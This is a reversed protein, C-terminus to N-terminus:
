NVLPKLTYGKLRLLALVGKEGGLHAAGVAFLTTHKKAIGDFQKVWNENRNYLLLDLHNNVGSDEAKSLEFLKEIDQDRYIKVMEDMAAKYKGISDITKVLDRAQKEYPISDFISSQFAMTELGKTPLKLRSAEDIIRLDIGNKKECDLFLEYLGSSIMMPQQRELAKFPMGPQYNEFFSRVKQYDDENLLDSLTTGNKMALSTVGSLLESLDDMDVELYVQQVHKLVTLVGSSLVADDACMLHMTGLFYSPTKLGNGSVEWLLTNNTPSVPVLVKQKCSFLFAFGLISLLKPVSVKM